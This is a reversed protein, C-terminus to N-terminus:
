HSSDCYLKPFSEGGCQSNYLTCGSPSCTYLEACASGDVMGYYLEIETHDSSSIQMREVTFTEEGSSSMWPSHDLTAIICQDRIDRKKLATRNNFCDSASFGSFINTDYFTIAGTGLDEWGYGSKQASSCSNSTRNPCSFPVADLWGGALAPQVISAFAIVSSRYVMEIM